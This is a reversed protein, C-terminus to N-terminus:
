PRIEVYNGHKLARLGRRFASSSFFAASEAVVGGIVDRKRPRGHLVDPLERM